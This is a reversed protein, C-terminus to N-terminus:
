RRSLALGQLRQIFPEALKMYGQVFARDQMGGDIFTDRRAVLEAYRDAWMEELRGRGILVKRLLTERDGHPVGRPPSSPHRGEEALLAEILHGVTYMILNMCLFPTAGQRYKEQALKWFLDYKALHEKRTAM